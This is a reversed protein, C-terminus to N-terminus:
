KPDPHDEIYEITGTRRHLGPIEELMSLTILIPAESGQIKQTTEEAMIGYYFYSEM